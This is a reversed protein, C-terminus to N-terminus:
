QITSVFLNIKYRDSLEKTFIRTKEFLGSKLKQIQWAFLFIQIFYTGYKM